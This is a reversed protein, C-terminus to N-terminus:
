AKVELLRQLVPITAELLRRDAPDLGAIQRDLYADARRSAESLLGQGTPTLAVEYVRGDAADQSREVLGLDELKAALRTMSSKSIQEREALRGLPTPGHRELTSLASLQSPTLGAQGHRRVRRHLRTLSLRLVSTSTSRFDTPM